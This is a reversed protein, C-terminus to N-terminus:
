EIAVIMVTADDKLPQGAFSMVADVLVRELEAAPLKRHEVLLDILRDEGFDEDRNNTAETIGDTVLVVRDGPGLVIEAEDYEADSFIGLVTGSALLREV